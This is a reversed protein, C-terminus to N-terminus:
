GRCCRVTEDDDNDDDNEDDHTKMIMEQSHMERKVIFVKGHEDSANVDEDDLAAAM